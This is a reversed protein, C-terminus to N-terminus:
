LFSDQQRRIKPEIDGVQNSLTLLERDYAFIQPDVKYATDNIGLLCLSDLNTLRSLAVYGMGYSFSRSLDIEAVELTMGQSKHITIAWALRLPIQTIKALVSDEDNITWNDALAVVEAGSVLRVIPFNDRSFGIVTGMSGNVYVIKEDKFKNKVFM